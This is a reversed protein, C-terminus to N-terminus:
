NIKLLLRFDHMIGHQQTDCELLLKEEAVQGHSGM